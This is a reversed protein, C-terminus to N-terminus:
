AGVATPGNLHSILVPIKGWPRKKTWTKKCGNHKEYMNLASLSACIHMIQRLEPRAQLLSHSRSKILDNYYLFITNCSLIM